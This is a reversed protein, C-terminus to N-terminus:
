RSLTFRENYEDAQREMYQAEDEGYFKLEHRRDQRYGRHENAQLRENAQQLCYVKRDMWAIKLSPPRKMIAEYSYRQQADELIEMGALQYAQDRLKFCELFDDVAENSSGALIRSSEIIAHGAAYISDSMARAGPKSKGQEIKVRKINVDKREKMTTPTSAPGLTHSLQIPELPEEDSSFEPPSAPRKTGGSRRAILEEV